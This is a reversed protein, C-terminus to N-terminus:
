PTRRIDRLAPEHRSGRWGRVLVGSLIRRELRKALKKMYPNNTVMKAAIEYVLGAQDRTTAASYVEAGIEDDVLLMYLLIGAALTTKGNKRPIECYVYRYRRLGTEKDKWGFLNGVLDAQWPRLEFAGSRGKVHTLMEPFFPFVVNAAPM